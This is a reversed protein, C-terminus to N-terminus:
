GAWGTNKDKTDLLKAIYSVVDALKNIINIILENQTLAAIFAEYSTQLRNQAAELSQLYKVQQANTAGVSDSSIAILELTREYDNMMAILRAQQRSGAM